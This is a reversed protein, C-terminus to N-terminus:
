VMCLADCRSTQAQGPQGGEQGRQNQRLCIQLAAGSDTKTQEHLPFPVSRRERRVDLQAQSRVRM